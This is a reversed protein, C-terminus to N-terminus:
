RERWEHAFRRAIECHMRIALPLVDENFDFQPHHCLPVQARDRPRTGLFYYCGPRAQQYYAFDESGLIPPFNEHTHAEGAVERAIRTVYAAAGAHNITVP